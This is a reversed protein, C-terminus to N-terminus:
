NGAVFRLKNSSSFDAYLLNTGSPHWAEKDTILPIREPVEENGFFSLESRLKGSQTSNWYYSSGSAAYQKRDQPCHFADESEIYPLLVTELVPEASSKSARGAALQPMTQNHDQLYSELAIGLGRLKGLCTAERSRAIANGAIPTVAALLVALAALVVLTETLTFGRSGNSARRKM